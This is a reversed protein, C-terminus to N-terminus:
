HNLEDEFEHIAFINFDYRYSAM